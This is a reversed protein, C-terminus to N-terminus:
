AHKPKNYTLRSLPSLVHRDGNKIKLFNITGVSGVPVVAVVGISATDCKHVEVDVGGVSALVVVMSVVSSSDIEVLM